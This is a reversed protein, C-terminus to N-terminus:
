VGHADREEDSDFLEDWVVLDAKVAELEGGGNEGEAIEGKHEEEGEDAEDREGM